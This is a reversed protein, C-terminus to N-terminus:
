CAVVSVNKLYEISKLSLGIANIYIMEGIEMNDIRKVFERLTM